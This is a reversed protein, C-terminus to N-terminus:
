TPAISSKTTLTPAAQETKEIKQATQVIPNALLHDVLPEVHSEPATRSLINPNPSPISEPNEIASLTEAHTPSMDTNATSPANPDVNELYSRISSFIETSVEQAIAQAESSAISLRSVLDSVFNASKQLGMMVLGIEDVLEGFQDIHLHHRESIARIKEQVDSSTVAAQIEPPLQEFRAEIEQSTFQKM